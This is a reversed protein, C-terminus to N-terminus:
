PEITQLFKTKVHQYLQMDVQNMQQIKHLQEPTISTLQVKTTSRNIPPLENFTIGCQKAIFKHFQQFFETVGVLTFCNDVVHKAQLYLQNDSITAGNHLVGAYRKAQGNTLEVLDTQTLFEDLSLKEIKAHLNHYERTALYNYYSIVRAIPDRMMSLHIIETDALLQYLMGHIPHHGSILHPYKDKLYLVQPLKNLHPANIHLFDKLEFAQVLYSELSTGATKPVHSYIWPVTQLNIEDASVVNQSLWKINITSNELDSRLSWKKAIKILKNSM